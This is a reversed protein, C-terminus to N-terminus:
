ILSNIYICLKLLKPCFLNFHTTYMHLITNSKINCITTDMEVMPNAYSRCCIKEIFTKNYKEKNMEKLMKYIRRRLYSTDFM